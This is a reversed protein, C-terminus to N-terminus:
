FENQQKAAPQHENQYYSQRFALRVQANKANQLALQKVLGLDLITDQLNNKQTSKGNGFQKQLYSQLQFDDLAITDESMKLNRVEDDQYFDVNEYLRELNQEQVQEM